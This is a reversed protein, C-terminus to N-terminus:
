FRQQNYYGEDENSRALVSQSGKGYMSRWDFSPGSTAYLAGYGANASSAGANATVTRMVPNNELSQEVPKEETNTEFHSTTDTVDSKASEFKAKIGALEDKLKQIMDEKLKEVEAKEEEKKKLQEDRERIAKELESTKTFAADLEGAMFREASAAAHVLRFTHVSEDNPTMFADNMGTDMTTKIHEISETLSPDNKSAEKIKELWPNAEKEIVEKFKERKEQKVREVQQSLTEMETKRKEEEEERAKQIKEMEERQKKLQEEFEAKQKEMALQAKRLDSQLVETMKTIHQHQANSESM